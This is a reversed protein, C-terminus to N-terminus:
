VVSKRDLAIRMALGPEVGDRRTARHFFHQIDLAVKAAKLASPFTAVIADGWTNKHDAGDLLKAIEPLAVLAYNAISDAGLKSWGAVDAFLISRTITEHSMAKSEKSRSQRSPKPAKAESHRGKAELYRAISEIEDIANGTVTMASSTAFVMAQVGIHPPPGQVGEVRARPDNTGVRLGGFTRHIYEKESQSSKMEELRKRAADVRKDSSYAAALIGLVEDRIELFSNELVGSAKQILDLNPKGARSLIAEVVAEYPYEVWRGESSGLGNDMGWNTDFFEGPRKPHFDQIYTRAHYGLWGGSWAKGVEEAERWILQLVKQHTGFKKSAARLRQAQVTLANASRKKAM